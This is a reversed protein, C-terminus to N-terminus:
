FEYGGAKLGVAILTGWLSFVAQARGLGQRVARQMNLPHAARSPDPPSYETPKRKKHMNLLLSICRWLAHRGKSLHSVCMKYACRRKSHHSVRMRYSHRGKAEDSLVCKVLFQVCSKLFSCV